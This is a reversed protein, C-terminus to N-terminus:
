RKVNNITFGNLGPGPDAYSIPRDDPGPGKGGKKTDAAFPAFCLMAVLALCLFGKMIKKMALDEKGLINM